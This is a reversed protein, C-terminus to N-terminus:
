CYIKFGTQVLTSIFNITQEASYSIIEEKTFTDTRVFNSVDSLDVHHLIIRCVYYPDPVPGFLIHEDLCQEICLRDYYRGDVVNSNFELISNNKILYTTGLTTSIPLEEAAYNKRIPYETLNRKNIFAEANRVLQRRERIDSILRVIHTAPNQILDINVEEDIYEPM